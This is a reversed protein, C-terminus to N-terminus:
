EKGAHKLRAFSREMTAQKARARIFHEDASRNNLADLQAL